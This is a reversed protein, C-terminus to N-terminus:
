ITQLKEIEKKHFNIKDQINEWKSKNWWAFATLSEDNMIPITDISEPLNDIVKVYSSTQKCFQRYTYDSYYFFCGDIVIIKHGDHIKIVALADPIEIFGDPTDVKM